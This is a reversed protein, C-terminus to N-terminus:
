FTNENKRSPRDCWRAGTWGTPGTAYLRSIMHNVYADKVDQPAPLSAISQEM